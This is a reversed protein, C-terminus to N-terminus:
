EFPGCLQLSRNTSSKGLVNKWDYHKDLFHQMKSNNTGNSASSKDPSTRDLNLGADRVRVPLGARSYPGTQVPGTQDKLM